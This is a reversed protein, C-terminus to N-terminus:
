NNQVLGLSQSPLFDGFHGTKKKPPVDLRLESVLVLHFKVYDIASRLGLQLAESLQWYQKETASSV